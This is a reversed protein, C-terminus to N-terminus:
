AAKGADQALVEALSPQRPGRRELGVAQLVLRLANSWAVYQRSAHDALPAGAMIRQDMLHLHVRLRAAREVLCRQAVTVVAEGGLHEILEREHRKITRAIVGRGDLRQYTEAQSAPGVLHNTETM